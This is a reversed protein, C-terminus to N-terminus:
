PQGFQITRAASLLPCPLPSPSFPPAPSPRERPGPAGCARDIGSPDQQASSKPAAPAGYGPQAMASRHKLLMWACFLLTPSLFFDLVAVAAFMSSDCKSLTVKGTEAAAVATPVAGAQCAQQGKGVAVADIGMVYLFLAGAVGLLLALLVIPTARKSAVSALAGLAALGAFLSLPVRWAVNAQPFGCWIAQGGAMSPTVPVFRFPAISDYAAAACVTACKANPSFLTVSLPPPMGLGCSADSADMKGCNGGVM